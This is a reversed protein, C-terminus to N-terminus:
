RSRIWFAWYLRNILKDDPYTSLLDRYIENALYPYDNDELLYAKWLEQREKTLQKYEEEMTLDNLLGDMASPDVIEFKGRAYEIDAKAKDYTEWIFSNGKMLQDEKSLDVVHYARDSDIEMMPVDNGEQYIKLMWDTGQLESPAPFYITSPPVKGKVPYNGSPAVPSIGGAGKKGSPNAPPPDDDDGGGAGKKGSPPAPPPDDGGGAGKKGKPPAPPPDDDGGMGKAGAVRANSFVDNIMGFFDGANGLKEKAPDDPLKSALEYKGSENLQVLEVGQLLTMSTGSKMKLQGETPLVQGPKLKVAKGDPPRFKANGQLELVIVSSTQALMTTIVLSAALFLIMKKM